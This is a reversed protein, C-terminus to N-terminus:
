SSSKTLRSITDPTPALLERWVKTLEEVRQQYRRYIQFPLSVDGHKLKAALGIRSRGFEDIDGRRFYLKDPDIGRLFEDLARSAIQDDVERKLLHERQLLSVVGRASLEDTSIPGLQAVARTNHLAAVLVGLSLSLITIRTRSKLRSM